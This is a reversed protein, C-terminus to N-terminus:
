EINKEEIKSVMAAESKDEYVPPQSGTGVTILFIFLIFVASCYSVM